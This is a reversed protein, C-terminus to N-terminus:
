RRGVCEGGRGAAASTRSYAAYIKRQCKAGTSLSSFRGFNFVKKVTTILKTTLNKVGHRSVM